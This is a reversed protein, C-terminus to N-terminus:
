SPSVPEAGTAGRPTGPPAAPRDSGRTTGPTTDDDPLPFPQKFTFVAPSPGGRRLQDLKRKASTVHSM